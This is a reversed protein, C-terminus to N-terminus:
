AIQRQPIGGENGGGLLHLFIFFLEENSLMRKRPTRANSGDENETLNLDFAKAIDAGVIGMLNDFVDPGFHTVDHFLAPHHSNRINDHVARSMGRIYQARGGVVPNGRGPKSRADSLRRVKAVPQESAARCEEVHQSQNRALLAAQSLQVFEQSALMAQEVVSKVLDHDAEIDSHETASAM